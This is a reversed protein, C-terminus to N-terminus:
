LLTSLLPATLAMAGIGIAQEDVDFCKHHLHFTTEKGGQTGLRILVGPIQELYCAFDEGGLSPCNLWKVSGEGLMVSLSKAWQQTLAENNQLPALSPIYEM